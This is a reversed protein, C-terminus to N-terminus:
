AGGEAADRILRTETHPAYGDGQPADKPRYKVLRISRDAREETTRRAWHALPMPEFCPTAGRYAYLLADPDAGNRIMRRAEACVSAVRTLDMVIM